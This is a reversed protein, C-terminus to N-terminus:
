GQAEEPVLDVHLTEIQAERKFIFVSQANYPVVAVLEWGSKGMRDLDNELETSRAVAWLRTTYDWYTMGEGERPRPHRPQHGPGRHARPRQPEELGTRWPRHPRVLGNFYPQASVSTIVWESPPMHPNREAVRPPTPVKDGVKHPCLAVGIENIIERRSNKAKQEATHAESAAKRAAESQRTKTAIEKAAKRLAALYRTRERSTM